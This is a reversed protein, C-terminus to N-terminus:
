IDQGYIEVPDSIGPPNMKELFMDVPYQGGSNFTCARLKICIYTVFEARELPIQIPDQNQPLASIHSLGSKSVEFHDSKPGGSLFQVIFSTDDSLGQFTRDLSGKTLEPNQNKLTL